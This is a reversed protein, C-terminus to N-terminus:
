YLCSCVDDEASRTFNQTLTLSSGILVWRAGDTVPSDVEDRRDPRTGDIGSSDHSPQPGPPLDSDAWTRMPISDKLLSGPKTYLRGRVQLKARDPALRRDITAASMAFVATAAEDTIRLEGFARLVPVLDGLFPAMREGSAIGKVAWCFRLVVIPDEGYISARAKRARVIKVKMVERLSTRDHDRHWGTRECLEDLIVKKGARGPSGYLRAITKTVTRRESM